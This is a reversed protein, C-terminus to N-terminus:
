WSISDAEKSEYTIRSYCTAYINESREINKQYVLRATKLSIRTQHPLPAFALWISLTSNKRDFLHATEKLVALSTHLSQIM